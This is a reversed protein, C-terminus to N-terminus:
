NEDQKVYINFLFVHITVQREGDDEAKFIYRWESHENLEVPRVMNPHEAIIGPLKAQIDSFKANKTNFVVLAAKCDRWILYGLLQDLAKLLESKGSWVKCEAVFAARNQDEIRIDTKGSKRFTEGTAQGEYHGNLHALIIDRLEEEDFKTFTSPTTEFSRGEHRIVKLIHEYEEKRIGLESPTNPPSPLPKVIKKRISLASIDPAKSDRKLPINLTEIVKGHKKLRERRASICQRIKGPLQQNYTEVDKKINELYSKINNLISDLDNKLAQGNDLTDSPLNFTIELYGNFGERSSTNINARPPNLTYTSTRCKWLNPDGTFPVSVAIQLGPVYCPESTDSIFRHIDYRIDVQTEKTDQTMSDEHLEIPSMEMISFIHEVLTDDDSHLFQREQISDVETQVKELNNRLIRSLDYEHFLIDQNNRM